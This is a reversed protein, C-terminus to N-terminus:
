IVWISKRHLYNKFKVALLIPINAQVKMFYLKEVGGARNLAELKSM